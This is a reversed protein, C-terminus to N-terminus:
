QQNTYWISIITTANLEESDGDASSSQKIHHIKIDPHDDLFDQVKNELTKGGRERSARTLYNTGEFIKINM